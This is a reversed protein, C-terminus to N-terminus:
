SELRTLDAARDVQADDIAPWPDWVVVALSDEKRELAEAIARVIGTDTEAQRDGSAEDLRHACPQAEVVRRTRSQRHRDAQLDGVLRFRHGADQDDVVLDLDAPREVDVQTGM